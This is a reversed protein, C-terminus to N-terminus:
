ALTGYLTQDRKVQSLLAVYTEVCDEEFVGESFRDISWSLVVKVGDVRCFAFSDFNLFVEFPSDVRSIVRECFVKLEVLIVPIYVHRREYHTAKGKFMFKLSLCGTIDLAEAAAVVRSVSRNISSSGDHPTISYKIM